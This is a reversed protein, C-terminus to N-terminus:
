PSLLLTRVTRIVEAPQEALRRHTIRLVRYGALQLTADRERDREM